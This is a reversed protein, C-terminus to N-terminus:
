AQPDFPCRLRDMEMEYAHEDNREYYNSWAQQERRTVEEHHPFEVQGLYLEYEAGDKTDHTRGDSYWKGNVFEGIEYWVKNKNRVTAVQFNGSAWYFRPGRKATLVKEMAEYQEVELKELDKLTVPSTNLFEKANQEKEKIKEKTAQLKDFVVALKKALAIAKYVYEESRWCSSMFTNDKNDNIIDKWISDVTHGEAQGHLHGTNKTVATPWVHALGIVNERPIRLVDGFKISEGNIETYENDCQCLDYATGTYNFTWVRVGDIIDLSFVETTDITKFIEKRRINDVKIVGKTTTTKLHRVPATTTEDRINM